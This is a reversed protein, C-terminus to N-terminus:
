HRRRAEATALEVHRRERMARGSVAVALRWRPVHPFYQFAARGHTYMQWRAKSQVQTRAGRRAAHERVQTPTSSRKKERHAGYRGVVVAMVGGVGFAVVVV